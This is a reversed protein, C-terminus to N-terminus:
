TVLAGRGAALGGLLGEVQAGIVGGGRYVGYLLTVIPAFMPEVQELLHAAPMRSLVVPIRVPSKPRGIQQMWTLEIDLVQRYLFLLRWRRSTPLRLLSRSSRQREWRSPHRLWHFRVFRRVWFM